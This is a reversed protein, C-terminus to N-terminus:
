RADYRNFSTFAGFFFLLNFLALLGMDPAAAQISTALTPKHYTFEPLETPDIPEEEEEEDGIKFVIMRGGVNMGTKEKMFDAYAKQYDMANRYYREKLKPSTGALETCAGALSTAPSLRAINFAVAQQVNQRNRREENLKATYVDMQDDRVETLSDMYSNFSNMIAEIDETEPAKYGALSKRFDAWLSSSYTAKQSAVEDVSPVDVARGAILVSARPVIMVSVIWIALLMLFSDSTRRTIASVFVALTLFAGFYLLGSFIILGLRSWDAGGLPVGMIPLLLCGIAIAAVLSVSLGVFSGILKGIIFTSRPIANSLIARLTGREKEGSIADYGLLIAFLSLVIQFIFRLDLFRFVAFVPEENFRSDHAFLEGRAEVETTRGIDNSVGTVLAALPDPPLFVRHQEIMLWDTAGELQRLNEAKAAEYHTVSTKYNSGGIYFSLLILVACVAFTVIFKTSGLLERIEKDIITKLV